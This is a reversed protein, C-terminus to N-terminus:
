NRRWSQIILIHVTRIYYTGCQRNQTPVLWALIGSMVKLILWPMDYFMRLPYGSFTHTARSLPKHCCGTQYLRQVARAITCYSPHRRSPFKYAYLRAVERIEIISGM